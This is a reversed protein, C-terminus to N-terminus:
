LLAPFISVPPTLSVLFYMPVGSACPRKKLREMRHTEPSLNVKRLQGLAYGEEVGLPSQKRYDTHKKREQERNEAKM